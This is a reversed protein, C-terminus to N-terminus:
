SAAITVEDCGPCSLRLPAADDGHDADDGEVSWVFVEADVKPHTVGRESALASDIPSECVLNVGTAAAHLM